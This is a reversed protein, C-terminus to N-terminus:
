GAPVNPVIDAEVMNTMTGDNSNTSDDPITPFKAMTTGDDNGDGMKWYGVLSSRGVGKPYGSNYIDNVEGLTLTENNLSVEDINGIFYCGSDANNGISAKDLSGTFTPLSTTTQQLVGDLYLKLEDASTNWTAVLHHWLGDGEIAETSVATISSGGGKYNIKVENDSAHYLFAIQNNADVRGKFYNGTSATVDTKAWLSISGATASFVSTIGDIEVFDDVGDFDMSYINNIGNTIRISFDLSKRYIGDGGSMDDFVDDYGDFDISQIEVGNYNGSVRDLATKIYNGLKSAQLYTDAYGSVMVKVVDLTAVSDKQSDPSVSTVDYVIFPFETTQPMVNPSIKDNVLNYVATNDSLIKYLARGIDM